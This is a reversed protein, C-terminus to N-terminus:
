GTLAFRAQKEETTIMAIIAIGVALYILGQTDVACYLILGEAPPFVYAVVGPALPIVPDPVYTIGGIWTRQPSMLNAQLEASNLALLYRALQLAGKPADWLSKIEYIQPYKYDKRLGEYDVLDPMMRGFFPARLGYRALITNISVNAVMDPFQSRFDPILHAEVTNGWDMTSTCVLMGSPDLNNVPNAHAYVYKNLSLPQRLCGEVPDMTWFRGKAPSMYRARLYTLALDSFYHEGAYLYTNPVTGTSYILNGFADYTYTNTIAGAADTLFRVSSQADYSYFSVTWTSDLLQSQSIRSHGYTYTRQVTGDVIEELVQPYGTPNRDDVLYNTTVGGSTVSVLNGDGDYVFRSDGDNLSTIRNEFDYQYANGDSGITNGNADYLDSLLRDNEDYSFSVSPVSPVTSTQSLRNSAADYTYSITGNNTSVPDNTIIEGTLRYLADYSYSVTRGDLETATLRNGANGLTYSYSAITGGANGIQIGTLRYLEDYQQTTQVGNPYVYSTLNSVDDYTYTTVGSALQHDTVTELRNLADYSYNVWTGDPNSSQVSLLNNALDYTYSLTGYPTTKSILRGRVDYGYTTIGSTDEMRSRLGTLTYFYRTAPEGLSPDPVKQTLRDMDDYVYSTTKGNFDTRSILNGAADYDYFESGGGPLTRRIRRGSSDYEFTTTHGNADTISQQNGAADYGYETILGLADHVSLLRGVGDYTYTTTQGAQDISSLLWGISNYQQQTTTGDPYTTMVLRGRDDYTYSTQHGNADTTAIRRGADDYIHTTTHGLADTMSLLNGAADYSSTTVHGLPDTVSILRGVADYALTTTGAVLSEDAVTISVLQGALDYESRTIVGDQATSTLENGRWDYTFIETTGDPYTIETLRNAQDFVYSTRRGLPDIVATQNGNADYEYRIVHGQADTETLMRGLADYTYTTAHGLPDTKSLMRGLQDYTYTTTHDLADTESLKNGYADYTYVTPEGQANTYTLINGKNDYTFDALTGMNDDLNSPLYTDNYDITRVNGVPDISSTVGSYENYTMTTAKGRTDIIVTTNGKDDYSFQTTHGLADTESLKNHNSDYTYTTTHELSNTQSLLNGAADFASVEVGGDPNTTTTTRAALDYAYSTVNGLADTVTELRGDPYYTATAVTNGRPDTGSRFFHALAPTDYYDYSIAPTDPLHVAVLDGAADYEYRYVHGMPDTIRVIRGQSDRVFPVSLGASSTIGGPSFTLTNDNLDRISKLAGDASMVFERGYPDTYTFETVTEAYLPGPFCFTLGGSVTLLGCGNSELSGYVGPEPTYKPLSLFGFVWSPAYPTFYFTKRSGDPMTLTVNNAADVEVRPNAIDLKWGYGFDGNYDRELSDYTRGIAIPLGTLPVVLDTVSFRVRGPKNEGEVTVMVASSEWQEDTTDFGVACLVYSDNALLTTDLTAVTAGGTGTVNEALSRFSDPNFEPWLDVRLHTLDADAALTVPAQGLVHAENLPSAIFGQITDPDCLPATMATLTMTDSARYERDDATLELVYEGAESATLQPTLSTDDDFTVEGPGSVVRWRIRLEGIPWGDDMATAHLTISGGPLPLVRDPGADVEPAANPVPTVWARTEYLNNVEDPEAYIDAPDVWVWVPLATTGLPLSLPVDEYAGPTLDLTTLVTEILTGGDNPDGDYFAVEAGAPVTVQGGNGIRVTLETRDECEVERMYSATLDPLAPDSTTWTNNNEDLEVQLHDSDVMVTLISDRFSLQTGEALPFTVSVTEGPLLVSLLVGGLLLDVTEDYAGNGDRDEFLLVTYGGFAEATGINGIDVQIAGYTELTDIDFVIGSLDVGNILLDPSLYLTSAYTNNRENLEGIVNAEDVVLWVPRATTGLPLTLIVTEFTGPLIEGTTAATGLAVTGPQAPNGSYFTVVAGPPAAIGGLNNVRAALTLDSGNVTQQLNSVTLDPRTDICTMPPAPPLDPLVYGATGVTLDYLVPTEGTTARKFNVTIRLYRGDPVAITGGNDVGTLASFTTGDHSSAAFVEIQGDNCINETWGLVGWAADEIASDFVVEWHGEDPLKTLTSGTMDSYNYLEGGLDPSTFDVAGVPVGGGGIPGLAPDIRMVTRSYRNTVWIKGNVDVAAGTPTNGVTIRGVLTGDPLLHGISNGGSQAVWVHDNYDIVCGQANNYGHAYTALLTGDPAFKRIQNGSYSTNWVNGQSDICLGYSDHGWGTWNTGNAGSLPLATDWRLLNRASWIVGNADILGGYGGYGVPGETRLIQGTEGNILNFVGANNGTGSVWVNNDRDVSVHRTGSASVRVYQIICEDEATSVGGNTDAGDANTWLLLDNQGTSTQIVGDGNRDECENNELLGIKTM